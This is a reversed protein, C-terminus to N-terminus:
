YIGSNQCQKLQEFYTNCQDTSSAQQICQNFLDKETACQVPAGAAPAAAAAVPAAAPAEPAGEHKHIVETQRAGFIGDMARSAMSFGVGTAMGSMMSGALGGMMGGGQAPAPPPAAAAPAPPPAQKRPPPPSARPASRAPSASRGSSRRPM